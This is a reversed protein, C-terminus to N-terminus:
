SGSGVLNLLRQLLQTNSEETGRYTDYCAKLKGAHSSIVAALQGTTMGAAQLAEAIAADLTTDGGDPIGGSICASSTIGGEGPLPLSALTRAQRGFVRSANLVESMVVEYGDSV